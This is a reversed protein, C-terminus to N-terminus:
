IQGNLLWHISSGRPSSPLRQVFCSGEASLDQSPVGSHGWDQLSDPCCVVTDVVGFYLFMVINKFNDVRKYTFVKLWMKPFYKGKLTSNQHPPFVWYIQRHMEKSYLPLRLEQHFYDIHFANPTHSLQFVTNQVWKTNIHLDLVTKVGARKRHLKKKKEFPLRTHIEQKLSFFPCSSDDSALFGVWMTDHCWGEHWYPRALNAKLSSSHSYHRPGFDGLSCEM